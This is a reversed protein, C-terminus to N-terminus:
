LVVNLGLQQWFEDLEAVRFQHGLGSRFGSGLCQRVFPSIGNVDAVHVLVIVEKAEAVGDVPWRLALCSIHVALSLLVLSTVTNTGQVM